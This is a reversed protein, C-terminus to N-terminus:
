VHVDLRPENPVRQWGAAPETSPARGYHLHLAPAIFLALLTSTVLGGLVVWAMSQTIENGAVNGFLALPLFAAATVVATTIVPALRERAGRLVLGRGSRDGDEADLREVRGVLAIDNRVAIAFVAFLGAIEGLSLEGGSVLAALVGGVLALPLTVFVLAAARWSGFAAQLLLVIGIAAALALMLISQAPQEDRPKGLLEAHYELPFAFDQLRQRVDRQVDGAGRGSVAARIDVYRSTADHRFDVPEPMIQVAAVDGLRVHGGTPTDLLLDRVSNLSHSVAPVGKVVVSFVKQQEFFNGVELGSILTGAARRVDGPKIGHREAAGIDVQIRMTPEVAPAIVTPGRVGDIHGLVQRLEGAKRQLVSLDQGYVRVTLGDDAPAFVDQSRQGAYTQVRADIGAYGAVVSRVDRLTKDYDASPDLTLWMEGSGPGVVQDSTVARGLHAGVTGVGPVGQLEDVARATIRRAEPLSTSPATDWRVVLERDRFSPRLAHGLFPIVALGVLLLAGAALVAPRPTRAFRTFTRVYVGALRTVVRREGRARQVRSMLLLCLAPTITLAVVMSALVALAYALAMPRVFAGSVGGTFLVPVASLLVILTGFGMASRLEVATALVTSAPSPKDGGAEEAAHLRRTVAQVGGVADDIVVGLAAALGAVLLANITAGTLDLVLLAAVLSLPLALVAILLAAWGNLLAVCALVVLAAGILLAVTYHDGARQIFTAPRFVSTDVTVGPMGQRLEAMADDLKRTVELTNAGRLKEVVLLLGDGGNVLADGILPQHDEVVTSVDGLTRKTDEIPVQALDAPRGFPLIHRVSLRLNPGDIFGGTGPTSADLFSLPSVLQANGTTEIVQRLSVKETRLRRPDVQVQLQRDRFGWIAVNAVGPIGMLRPKVTWRALVSLELPSLKKTSLGIMMVRNAVSVPQLMQPPKSVNPFAHPQSLREQVLQRARLIDTGREFVLVISSLGEISDSRITDVGKVGNLLDQELPVTILQEVEAASLGLSETQVEVYPLAYEPLVDVPANRLQSIGVVMLVVALPVVILRFRLAGSVISRIM